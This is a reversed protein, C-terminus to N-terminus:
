RVAPRRPRRTGRRVGHRQAGRQQVGRRGAPGGRGPARHKEAYGRERLQALASGSGAREVVKFEFLYVAGAFRVAMDLRGRNTSDEVAVDFGLAAFWAYFVSAWYGEYRAVDDNAYRECPISAFFAKLLAEVGAFDNARLLRGLRSGNRSRWSANPALAALLSENLGRRM